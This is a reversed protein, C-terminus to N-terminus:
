GGGSREAFNGGRCWPFCALSGLGLGAFVIIANPEPVVTLRLANPKYSVEWFLNQELGPLNCLDFESEPALSEYILVDFSDGWVPIFGESLSVDLLGGLKATGTIIIQDFDHGATGGHGSLETELTGYLDQRFYGDITGTGRLTGGNQLLATELLGDRLNIENGHYCEIRGKASIIGGNFVSVSNNINSPSNYKGIRLNSNYESMIWKSGPGAVIVSAPASENFIGLCGSRSKVVGGDAILLNSDVYLWNGIIWSSGMGIVKARTVADEVGRIYTGGECDDFGSVVKGGNSIELYASGQTGIDFSGHVTWTSGPGSVLAQTASQGQWDGQLRTWLGTHSSHPGLGSTLTAGNIIQLTSSGEVEFDGYINWSSGPGNIIVGPGIDQNGDHLRTLLKNGSSNTGLGTSVRAGNSISLTSFGVVEFDGYLDWSSGLGSVRAQSYNYQGASAIGTLKSLGVDRGSVVRAGDSISLCADGIDDGIEFDGVVTWTSNLGAVSACSGALIRTPTFTKNYSQGSILSGGNTIALNVDRTRGLDLGGVVIWQSSPGDIYAGRAEHLDDLITKNNFYNKTILTGGNNVQVQGNIDIVYASIDLLSGPDKVIIPGGHAYLYQEVIEITEGNEVVLSDAMAADTISWSVVTAITAVVFVTNRVTPKSKYM